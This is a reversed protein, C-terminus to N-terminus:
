DDESCCDWLLRSYNMTKIDDCSLVRDQLESNLNQIKIYEEELTKSFAKSNADDFLRPGSELMSEYIDFLLYMNRIGQENLKAM